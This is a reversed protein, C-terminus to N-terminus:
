GLLLKLVTLTYNLCAATQYRILVLTMLTPCRKSIMVPVCILPQTIGNRKVSVVIVRHLGFITLCLGNNGHFISVQNGFQPTMWLPLTSWTLRCYSILIIILAETLSLHYSIAYSDRKAGPLRSLCCRETNSCCKLAMTSCSVKGAASQLNLITDTQMSNSIKYAREPIELRPNLPTVIITIHTCTHSLRTLQVHQNCDSFPSFV